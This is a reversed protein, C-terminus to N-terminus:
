AAGKRAKKLLKAIRSVRHMEVGVIERTQHQGVGAMTLNVILSDRAISVLDRLLDATIQNEDLRIAM